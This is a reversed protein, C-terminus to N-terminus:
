KQKVTKAQLEQIEKELVDKAPSNKKLEQLWQVAKGWNEVKEEIVALQGLIQQLLFIDPDPKNTERERWRRLALEQLNRARELDKRNELAVRGLEFLIEPSGPNNRLGERLFREAEDPLGLGRRLWYAAVTYTDVKQPDLEAALKLWPLIEREGGFTAADAHLHKSPYFSRGFRDLWDLPQNFFDKSCREAASEHKHADKASNKKHDAHDDEDGGKQLGADAAIHVEDNGERRDFISPYFGMHYYVDAKIYFHNAFLKRSDGMVTALLSDNESRASWTIQRPELWCALSFCSVFLFALSFWPSPM